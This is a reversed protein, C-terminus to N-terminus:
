ADIMAKTIKLQTTILKGLHKKPMFKEVMLSFSSWFLVMLAKQLRQLNNKLLKCNTQLRGSCGCFSKYPAIMDILQPRPLRSVYTSVRLFMMLSMAFQIKKAEKKLPILHRLMKRSLHFSWRSFCSFSLFKARAKEVNTVLSYCQIAQM